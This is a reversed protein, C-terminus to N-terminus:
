TASSDKDQGTSMSRGGLTIRCCGDGGGPEWTQNSFAVGAAEFLGRDFAGAIRCLQAVREPGLGAAMWAQKLPCARVAFSIWDQGRAVDTPYLAGGDPSAALFAEGVAVAQGKIGDFAVAVEEGRRHCAAALAAEAEAAPLRAELEDLMLRYLHARNAFSEKLERRLRDENTMGVGRMVGAFRLAPVSDLPSQRAIKAVV